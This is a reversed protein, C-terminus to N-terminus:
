GYREKLQAVCRRSISLPKKTNRLYVQYTYNFWKELREVQELNVIASRHIRAFYKEPLREEWERLPM